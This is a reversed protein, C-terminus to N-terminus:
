RNRPYQRQVSSVRLGMESRAKRQHARAIGLTRVLANAANVCDKNYNCSSEIFSQYEGLADTGMCFMGPRMQDWEAETLTRSTSSRTFKCFAGHTIEDACIEVNPITVTTISEPRLARKNKTQPKQKQCWIFPNKNFQTIACQDSIFSNYAGLAEPAFCFQPDAQRVALWQAVTLSRKQEPSTTYQCFAGFRGKDACIEVNPITLACSSLMFLVLFIIVRRIKRM